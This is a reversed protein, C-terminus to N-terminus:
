DILGEWIKKYILQRTLTLRVYDRTESYPILEIFEDMEANRNKQLWKRAIIPGANYAALALPLSNFENLMKTFYYTGFKISVQPNYLSFSDISLEGAILRGTSPIIQMLGRADASSTANPDFMSEQWIIALTLWLNQYNKQLTFLYKVPYLLRLFELPYNRSDNNNEYRRKIQLCFKIAGYDYGNDQCLKSLFILDIFSKDEISELETLAYKTEDLDFYRIARKLHLSDKQDFSVTTDGFQKLWNDLRTTDFPVTGQSRVLTYYSLPYNRFLFDKLSDTPDGLRDKIRIQWYIFDPETYNSFINLAESLHGMRFMQFGARFSTIKEKVRVFTEVAGLTDGIDELLFAKRKLARTAYKSNKHKNILSDYIAIATRYDLRNEYILAQYYYAEARHSKHFYNLATNYQSQDYNIKGLYYNVDDDKISNKFFKMAQAYDKHIYAVRAFAKYEATNKPKLVTICYKAGVSSPHNRILDFGLKRFNKKDDQREYIKLLLFKRSVSDKIKSLEEKILSVETSNLILDFILNQYNSSLYPSVSDIELAIRLANRYDKLQYYCRALHILQYDRLQGTDQSLYEIAEAYRQLHFLALGKLLNDETSRHVADWNKQKLFIIRAYNKITEDTDIADKISDLVLVGLDYERQDMYIGLLIKAKEIRYQPNIVTKLLDFAYLPKDRATREAESLLEIEPIIEIKIEKIGPSPCSIIFM